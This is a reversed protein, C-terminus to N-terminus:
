FAEGDEDPPAAEPEPSTGYLAQRLLRDVSEGNGRTLCFYTDSLDNLAKRLASFRSALLALVQALEAHRPPPHQAASHYGSRGVAEYYELGPLRRGYTQRHYIADPFVGTLFLAVDGIRAEMAFAARADRARRASEILDVLYVFSRPAPEDQSRLREGQLFHALLAGVYDAVEREAIGRGLFVQRVLVYYFLWPSVSLLSRGEVLADLLERSDLLEDLDVDATGLALPEDLSSGGRVAELAFGLDQGTIQQRCNPVIM